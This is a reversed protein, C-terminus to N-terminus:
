EMESFDCSMITRALVRSHFVQGFNDVLCSAYDIFKECEDDDGCYRVM